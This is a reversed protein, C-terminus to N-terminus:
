YYMHNTICTILLVHSLMIKDTHMQQNVGYTYINRLTCIHFMCFEM